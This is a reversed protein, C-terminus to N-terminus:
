RKIEFMVNAASFRGSSGIRATGGKELRKGDVYTGQTSGAGARGYDRVAFGGDQFMLVCHQGSVNPEDSLVIDAWNQDRGIKLAKSARFASSKSFVVTKGKNPGTKIAVSWQSRPLPAPPAMPSHWQIGNKQDYGAPQTPSLGTVGLTTVKGMCRKFKQGKTMPAGGEGRMELGLAVRGLTQGSLFTETILWYLLLLAFFVTAYVAIVPDFRIEAQVTPVILRTLFSLLILDLLSAAVLQLQCCKSDLPGTKQSM